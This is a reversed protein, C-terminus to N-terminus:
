FPVSTCSKTSSVDHIVKLMRIHAVETDVLEWIAAQQNREKENAVNEERVVDTWSPELSYLASFSSIILNQLRFKEM